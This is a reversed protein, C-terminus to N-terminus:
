LMPSVFFQWQVKMFVVNTRVSNNSSNSRPRPAMPSNDRSTSRPVAWGVTPSDFAALEDDSSDESSHMREDDQKSEDDAEDFDEVVVVEEEPHSKSLKELMEAQITVEQQDRFNNLVDCIEETFNFMSKRIFGSADWYAIQSKTSNRTSFMVQTLTKTYDETIMHSIKLFQKGKMRRFYALYERVIPANQATFKCFQRWFLSRIRRKPEDLETPYLMLANELDVRELYHLECFRTGTKVDRHWVSKKFLMHQVGWWHGVQFTEYDFGGLNDLVAGAALIYFRSGYEGHTCVIEDRGCIQIRMSTCLVSLFGPTTDRFLPISRIEAAFIHM